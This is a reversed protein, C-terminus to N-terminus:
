QMHIYIYIKKKREREIERPRTNQSRTITDQTNGWIKDTQFSVTLILTFIYYIYLMFHVYLM